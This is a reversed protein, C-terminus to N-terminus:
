RQEEKNLKDLVGKERLTLLTGDEGDFVVNQDQYEFEVDVGLDKLMDNVVSLTAYDLTRNTAKTLTKEKTAVDM